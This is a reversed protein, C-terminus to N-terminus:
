YAFVGNCNYAYCTRSSGTGGKTCLIVISRAKVDLFDQVKNVRKRSSATDEIRYWSFGEPIVPLEFSHDEWHANVAM